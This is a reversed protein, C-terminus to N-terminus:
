AFFHWIYFMFIALGSIVTSAVVWLGAKKVDLEGPCMKPGLYSGFGYVLAFFIISFIGKTVWHHGAIGALWDKFTPSLESWITLVAVLVITWSTAHALAKIDPKM